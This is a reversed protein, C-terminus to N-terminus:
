AVEKNSNAIRKNLYKTISIMDGLTLNGIRSGEPHYEPFAWDIRKIADVVMDLTVVETTKNTKNNKNATTM